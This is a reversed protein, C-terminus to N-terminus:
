SQGALMDLMALPCPWRFGPYDTRLGRCCGRSGRYGQAACACDGTPVQIVVPFGRMRELERESTGESLKNNSPVEPLPSGGPGTQPPARGKEVDGALTSAM